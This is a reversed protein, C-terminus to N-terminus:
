YHDIMGPTCYLPMVRIAHFKFNFDFLLQDSTSSQVALTRDVNDGTAEIWSGSITPPTDYVDGWHWEDLNNDVTSRMQGTIRNRFHKYDSWAEQYAITDINKYTDSDSRDQGRGCAFLWSRPIPQYGLHAFTPNYFQWRTKRSFMPDIGQQYSLDHRCVALCYLYGPETFSKSFSRGAAATKSYAGTHGLPSTADTSSTQAVQAMGLRVVSGGLYEPRQLRADESVVGFCARIYETFRGGFLASKELLRQMQFAQRLQNITTGTAQALDAYTNKFTLMDNYGHSTGSANQVGLLASGAGNEGEEPNGPLESLDLEVPFAKGNQYASWDRTNTGAVVGLDLRHLLAGTDFDSYDEGLVLPALGSLPVEIPDGRQPQPLSSTFVDFPKCAKLLHQWNTLESSNVNGTNVLLPDQWAESRFWENWILQYGRMPLFSIWNRPQKLFGFTTLLDDSYAPNGLYDMLSGPKCEIELGPITLESSPAWASYKNEGFFEATQDWVLRMPVFFWYYNIWANDMVPFLPTTMRSFLSTDVAFSDGPLIEICAAPVIDGFNATTKHNMPIDFKSRRKFVDNQMVAFSYQNAMM